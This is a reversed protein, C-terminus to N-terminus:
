RPEKAVLPRAQWSVEEVFIALVNRYNKQARRLSVEQQVLASRFDAVKFVGRWAGSEEPIITGLNNYSEETWDIQYSHV